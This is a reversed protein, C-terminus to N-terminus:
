RVQPTKGSLALKKVIYRGAVKRAKKHPIPGRKIDKEGRPRRCKNAEVNHM